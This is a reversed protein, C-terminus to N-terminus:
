WTQGIKNGDVYFAVLREKLKMTLVIEHWVGDAINKILDVTVNANYLSVFLSTTSATTVVAVDLEVVNNVTYSLLYGLSQKEALLWSSSM